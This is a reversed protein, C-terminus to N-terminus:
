VNETPRKTNINFCDNLLISVIYARIKLDSNQILSVTRLLM